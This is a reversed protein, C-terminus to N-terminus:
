THTPKTASIRGGTTGTTPLVMGYSLGEATLFQHLHSDTWGMAARLLHHLEPLSV